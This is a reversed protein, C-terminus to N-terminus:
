ANIESNFSAATLTGVNKGDKILKTETQPQDTSETCTIAVCKDEIAFGTARTTNTVINTQM